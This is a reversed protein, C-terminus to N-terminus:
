PRLAERSVDFANRSTQQMRDAYEAGANALEDRLTASAEQVSQSVAGVREKLDAKLDDSVNGFWEDEVNSTALAGAVTAGIAVGIAGLVLPQRDLLDSLSSQAEGSTKKTPLVDGLRDFMERAGAMGKDSPENMAEATGSMAYSAAVRADRLSANINRSTQDINSAAKDQMQSSRHRASEVAQDWSSVVTQKTRAGIDALPAASSAVAIRLKDSGILLWMAGGGILAAALPNERAAATLGDM